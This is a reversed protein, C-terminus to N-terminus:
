ILERLDQVSLKLNAAESEDFVQELLKRKGKQLELVKEEVTGSTIFKYVNVQKDQGIRHARDTAQAEVAPNWWPDFHVVVDAATLNLGTGGAKLSILFVPISEDEQFRDVQAMRDTTSGDLYCFPLDASQLEAKLLKLVQVFQSFVLMRHGGELCNYLLERFANMKCSRYSELDPNVLRPDCCTQRLRLLQTLTKMRMAGETAGSDAMKDLESEASRRIQEYCDKQDQTLDLYLVQEIKEPLEPAVERKSRRLLYPAAQKLIRQEHWVREDGRTGEPLRPNAGPLLFELLSLLDSVSNEIPTGTLLMRGESTLSATAKANQTRRNKLHQAEDGIVCLFPFDRFMEVDRSLTGYSTIILDFKGLFSPTTARNSGHHSYVKFSPCFRNAERKWNEVL